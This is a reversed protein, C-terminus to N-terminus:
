AAVQGRDELLCLSRHIRGIAFLLVAVLDRPDIDEVDGVSALAETYAVLTDFDLPGRDVLHVRPADEPVVGLRYSSPSRELATILPGTSVAPGNGRRPM